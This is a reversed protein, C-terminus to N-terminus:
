SQCKMLLGPPTELGNAEMLERDGLIAATEGVTIIRGRNLLATRGCLEAIMDLDHSAIIKTVALGRVLGILNRRQRPDLNSTPEDLVLIEPDMSLITAIAARKREGFSLHHPSHQEYGSMQVQRLAERARYAVEDPALDMNLPGFAVDDLVTASFLQDDPDQFVLGVTRRIAKLNRKEMRMGCINIVGRGTLIGNLHLLLTTKGAGNPGVIGMTEGAAVRLSVDALGSRGDPYDFSLGRIVVADSM